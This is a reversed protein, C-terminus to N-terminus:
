YRPNDRTLRQFVGGKIKLARVLAQALQGRQIAQNAPQNFNKDLLGKDKLVAVRGAYDTAPDNADLFLLLGHFAEDNSPLNRTALTHWFEMQADADSGGLSATLPEAVKATTCGFLLCFASPLLCSLIATRTTM